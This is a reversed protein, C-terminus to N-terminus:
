NEFIYVGTMDDVQIIKCPKNFLKKYEHKFNYYEWEGFDKLPHPEVLIIYKAHEKISQIVRKVDQPKVHLLFHSCCILDYDSFQFDLVNKNIAVDIFENREIRAESMDLGTIFRGYKKLLKTFQGDGCGLELVTEFDLKKIINEVIKIKKDTWKDAPSLGKNGWYEKYDYLTSM